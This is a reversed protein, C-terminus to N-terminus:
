FIEWFCYVSPHKGTSSKMQKHFIKKQDNILKSHCHITNQQMHEKHPLIHLYASANEHAKLVTDQGCSFRGVYEPDQFPWYM